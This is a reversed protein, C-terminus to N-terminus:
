RATRHHRRRVLMQDWAVLLPNRVFFESPPPRFGEPVPAHHHIGSGPEFRHISNELVQSKGGLIWALEVFSSLYPGVIYASSALLYLDAVAARLGPLSNYGGKDGVTTVNPV